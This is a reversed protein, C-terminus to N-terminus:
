EEDPSSDALRKSVPRHELECSHAGVRNICEEFEDAVDTDAFTYVVGSVQVETPSLRTATM